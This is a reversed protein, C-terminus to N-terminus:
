GGILGFKKMLEIKLSHWKKAERMKLVRLKGYNARLLNQKKEELKQIQRDIEVLKKQLRKDILRVREDKEYFMVDDVLIRPPLKKKGDSTIVTSSDAYSINLIPEYRYYKGWKWVIIPIDGKEVLENVKSYFVQEKKWRKQVDRFVKTFVDRLSKSINELNNVM